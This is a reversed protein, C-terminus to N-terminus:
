GSLASLSPICDITGSCNSFSISSHECIAVTSCRLTGRPIWTSLAAAASYRNGERRTRGWNHAPNTRAAPTYESGSRPFQLFTRSPNSPPRLPQLGWKWREIPVVSTTGQYLLPQSPTPHERHERHTTGRGPAALGSTTSLRAPPGAKSSTSASLSHTCASANESTDPPNERTHM